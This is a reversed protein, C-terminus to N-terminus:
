FSFFFFKTLASCSSFEGAFATSSLSLLPGRSRDHRSSDARNVGFRLSAVLAGIPPAPNCFILELLNQRNGLTLTIYKRLGIFALRQDLADILLATSV